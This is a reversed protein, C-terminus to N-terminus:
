FDHRIRSSTSGLDITIDGALHFIILGLLKGQSRSAM